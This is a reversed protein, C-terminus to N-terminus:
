QKNSFDKLFNNLSGIDLNDLKFGGPLVDQYQSMLSKLLPPLYIIAFIIPALIIIFKIIGLIQTMVIYKRIKKVTEHIEETLVLNKELLNKLDSM